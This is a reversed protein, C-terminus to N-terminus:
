TKKFQSPTMGTAKKFANYFSSKSKFGVEMAVDVIPMNRTKPDNMIQRALEIRYNSVFSFFSQNMQENIIQSVQHTTLGTQKAFDPLTLDCELYLKEDRMTQELLTKHKEAEEPSLGSRGYKSSKIEETTIPNEVNEVSEDGRVLSSQFTAATGIFYVIFVLFIFPASPALADIDFYGALMVQSRNFILFLTLFLLCILTLSRLWRLNMRELSSFHEKLRSNHRHILGLVLFCYTGFQIVFFTGQLHLDIWLRLFSPVDGVVHQKLTQGTRPGWLYHLFSRQEEITYVWFTTYGALLLLLMAPVFHISHRWNVASRTLSYAYLYLLPGWTFNLTAILPWGTPHRFYFGNRIMLSQWLSLAIAIVLGAMFRNAVGHGSPAFLLVGALVLGQLIGFGYLLGVVDM